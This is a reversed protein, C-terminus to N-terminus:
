TRRCCSATHRWAMRTVCLKGCLPNVWERKKIDRYAAKARNMVKSQAVEKVMQRPGLKTYSGYICLRTLDFWISPRVYQQRSIQVPTKLPRRPDTAHWYVRDLPEPPVWVVLGPTPSGALATLTPRDIRLTLQGGDSSDARFSAGCKVQAHVTLLQERQFANRFGLRLDVKAADESLSTHTTEAFSAIGLVAAARRAGAAGDAKTRPM